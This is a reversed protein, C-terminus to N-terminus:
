GSIRFIPKITRETSNEFWTWVAHSVTGSPRYLKLICLCTYVQSETLVPGNKFLYKNAIYGSGLVIILIVAGILIKEVHKIKWKFKRIKIKFNM